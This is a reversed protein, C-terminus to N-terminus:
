AAHFVRDISNEEMYYHEILRQNLEEKGMPLHLTLPGYITAFAAFLNEVWKEPYVAQNGPMFEKIWRSNTDEVSEAHHLEIQGYITQMIELYRESWDEIIGEYNLEM